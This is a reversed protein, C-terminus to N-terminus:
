DTIIEDARSRWHCLESAFDWREQNAGRSPRTKHGANFVAASRRASPLENIICLSAEGGSPQQM